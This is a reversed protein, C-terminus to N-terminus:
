EGIVKMKAEDKGVDDAFLCKIKPPNNKLWDRFGVANQPNSPDVTKLWDLLDLKIQKHMATAAANNNLNMDNVNKAWQNLAYDLEHGALKWKLTMNSPTNSITDIKVTVIDLIATGLAYAAYDCQVERDANTRVVPFLQCFGIVALYREQLDPEPVIGDHNAVQLLVLAPRALVKGQYKLRPTRVFGLAKVAERRVMTLGAIENASMNAVDRPTTIYNCLAVICKNELERSKFYTFVTVDKNAADPEIAFLNGLTRLAWHKVGDSEDPKAIVKLALEAAKDYGMEGVVSLLRAANVRVVIKSNNIASELEKVLAAGMEKGFALYKEMERIPFGRPVPLENQIADEIVRALDDMAIRKNDTLQGVIHKAQRVLLARNAETAKDDDPVIVPNKLSKMDQYAVRDQGKLAEVPGQAFAPALSLTSVSILLALALRYM